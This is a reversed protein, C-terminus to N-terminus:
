GANLGLDGASTIQAHGRLQQATSAQTVPQQAGLREQRDAEMKARITEKESNTAQAASKSTRAEFRQEKKLRDKADEVARVQM